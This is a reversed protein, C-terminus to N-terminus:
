RSNFIKINSFEIVNEESGTLVYACYKIEIVEVFSFKINFNFVRGTAFLKRLLIFDVQIIQM